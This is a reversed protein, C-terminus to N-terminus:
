FNKRFVMFDTSSRQMLDHEKFSFFTGSQSPFVACYELFFGQLSTDVGFVGNSGPCAWSKPNKLILPISWTEELCFMRDNQQCHILNFNNLVIGIKTPFALFILLIFFAWLFKMCPYLMLTRQKRILTTHLLIRYVLNEQYFLEWM